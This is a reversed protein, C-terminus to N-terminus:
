REALWATLNGFMRCSKAIYYHNFPSTRVCQKQKLNERNLETRTDNIERIFQEIVEQNAISAVM